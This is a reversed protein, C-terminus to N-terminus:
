PESDIFIRYFVSASFIFLSMSAGQRLLLYISMMWLACISLMSGIRLANFGVNPGFFNGIMCYLMRGGDFSEIPLLNLIALMLSVAYFNFLATGYLNGDSDTLMYCIGCTLLNACPGAACLLWEKKYPILSGRTHITAGIPDLNMSRLEINLAKAACLHGCEHIAAAGLSPLSVGPPEFIVTAALLVAPFIGIKFFSSKM